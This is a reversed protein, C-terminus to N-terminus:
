LSKWFKDASVLGYRLNRFTHLLEKIGLARMVESVCVFAAVVIDARARPIGYKESRESASLEALINAMLDLDKLSIENEPDSFDCVAKMLRAAAVAGGSGILTERGSLNWDKSARRFTESLYERLKRMEGACVREGSFFARTLSVAGLPFSAVRDPRQGCGFVLELSGGGLDFFVNNKSADISTDSVAGLYALRAEDSESLIQINIGTRAYVEEAVLRGKSSLRMASTAVAVTEFDESLTSAHLLFSVLSASILDAADDVLEGDGRSIRRDLSKEWISSVAGGVKCALLCKITNSGVDIALRRM